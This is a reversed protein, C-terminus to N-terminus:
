NKFVDNLKTSDNSLSEIVNLAYEDNFNNDEITKDRRMRVIEEANEYNDSDSNLHNLEDLLTDVMEKSKQSEQAKEDAKNKEYINKLQEAIDNIEGTKLEIDSDINILTENSNSFEKPLEVTTPTFDKMKTIIKANYKNSFNELFQEIPLTFCNDKKLMKNHAKCYFRVEGNQQIFHTIEALPFDMCQRCILIIQLVNKLDNSFISLHGKKNKKLGTLGTLEKEVIVNARGIYQNNTDKTNIQEICDKAPSFVKKLLNLDINENVRKLQSNVFKMDENMESFYCSSYKTLAGSAHLFMGSYAVLPVNTDVFMEEGVVTPEITRVTGIQSSLLSGDNMVVSNVNEKQSGNKNNSFIGM